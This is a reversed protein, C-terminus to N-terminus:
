RWAPEITLAARTQISAEAAADRSAAEARASAEAVATMVKENEAM